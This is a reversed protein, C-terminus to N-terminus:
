YKRAFLSERREHDRQCEVCRGAGMAARGTDLPEECDRCCVIGHVWIPPAGVQRRVMEVGAAREAEERWQALEFQREDM